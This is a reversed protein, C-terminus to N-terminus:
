LKSWPSMVNLTNMSKILLQQAVTFRGINIFTIEASFSQHHLHNGRGYTRYKSVFILIDELDPFNLFENIHGNILLQHTRQHMKWKKGMQQSDWSSRQANFVKCLLATELKLFNLPVSATFRMTRSISFKM